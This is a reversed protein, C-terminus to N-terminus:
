GIVRWVIAVVVCVAMLVRLIKRHPYQTEEQLFTKPGSVNFGRVQLALSREKTDILSSLVVPGILPVFAKMRAFLNGETEMGRSRQADTITDMTTMMQPIIQFVSSLVYGFRASLGKRVLSEILDSPKTTLVLILFAGVINLARFCIGLAYLLGEQYFAWSGIHFLVTENKVYFFGQIFVVTVLVFGVFSIVALARRFVKAVLLILFSVLMGILATHLSPLIIPVLVAFAIYCLKTIPDIQHIMTDKPVYLSLTKM